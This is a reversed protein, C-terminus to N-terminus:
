VSNMSSILASHSSFGRCIKKLSRVSYLIKIDKKLAGTFFYRWNLSLCFGWGTSVDQFWASLMHRESELIRKECNGSSVEQSCTLGWTPMFRKVMVPYLIEATTNYLNTCVTYYPVNLSCTYKNQLNNSLWIRM